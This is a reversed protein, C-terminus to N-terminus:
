FNYVAAKLAHNLSPYIRHNIPPRVGNGRIEDRFAKSDYGQDAALSRLNEFM